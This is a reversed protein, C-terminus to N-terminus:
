EEAGGVSIGKLVVARDSIFVAGCNRCEGGGQLLVLSGCGPCYTLVRDYARM